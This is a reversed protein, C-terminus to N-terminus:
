CNVKGVLELLIFGIRLNSSVMRKRGYNSKTVARLMSKKVVKVSNLYEKKTYNLIWKYKKTFKYDSYAILLAIKCIAKSSENFRGVMSVLPLVIMTFHNFTKLDTKVLGMIKNGLSPDHKETFKVNLLMTGEIQRVTSTMKLIANKSFDRFGCM